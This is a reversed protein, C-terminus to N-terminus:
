LSCIYSRSIFMDIDIFSEYYLFIFTNLNSLLRCRQAKEEEKISM